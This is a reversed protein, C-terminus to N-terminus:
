HQMTVPVPRGHQGIQALQGAGTAHDLQVTHGVDEFGFLGKSIPQTQLSVHRSGKQGLSLRVLNLIIALIQDPLNTRVAAEDQTGSALYRQVCFGLVHGRKNSRDPSQSCAARGPTCEAGVQGKRRRACRLPACARGNPPEVSLPSDAMHKCSHDSTAPCNQQQNQQYRPHAQAALIDLPSEHM